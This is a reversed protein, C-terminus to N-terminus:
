WEVWKLLEWVCFEWDTRGSGDRKGAEMGKFASFVEQRRDARSDKGAGLVVVEDEDILREWAAATSRQATSGPV